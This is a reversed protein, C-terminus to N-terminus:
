QAVGGIVNSLYNGSSDTSWVAYLGSSSDKLAVDYGGGSVQEAGFRDIRCARPAPPERQRQLDQSAPRVDDRKLFGRRNLKLVNRLRERLKRQDRPRLASLGSQRSKQASGPPAPLVAGKEISGVPKESPVFAREPERVRRVVGAARQSAGPKRAHHVPHAQLLAARAPENRDIVGM